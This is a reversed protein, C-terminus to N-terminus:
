IPQGNNSTTQQLRPIATDNSASATNLKELAKVRQDLANVSTSMLDTSAKLLNLQEMTEISRRPARTAYSSFIFICIMGM